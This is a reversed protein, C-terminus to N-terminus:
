IFLYAAYQKRLRNQYSQESQQDCKTCGAVTQYTENDDSIRGHPGRSVDEDDVQSDGVQSETQERLRKIQQLYQHRGPSQSPEHTFKHRHTGAGVHEHRCDADCGDSEIAELYAFCEVVASAADQGINIAFKARNQKKNMVCL